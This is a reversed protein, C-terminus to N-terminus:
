PGLPGPHRIYPALSSLPFSVTGAPFTVELADPTLAWVSLDTTVPNAADSAQLQTVATSSLYQQYPGFFLNALTLLGGGDLAFTATSV